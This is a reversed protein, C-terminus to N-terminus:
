SIREQLWNILSPVTLGKQLPVYLPSYLTFCIPTDGTQEITCGTNRWGKGDKQAELVDWLGERFLEVTLKVVSGGKEIQNDTHTSM